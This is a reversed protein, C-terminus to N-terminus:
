GTARIWARISNAIHQGGLDPIEVRQGNELMLLTPCGVEASVSDIHERPVVTTRFNKRMRLGAEGLTVYSSYSEALGVLSVVFIAWCGATIWFESQQQTVGISIALTIVSLVAGVILLWRAARFHTRGGYAM